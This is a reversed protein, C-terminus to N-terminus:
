QIAPGVGKLQQIPRVIKDELYKVSENDTKDTLIRYVLIPQQNSSPGGIRVEPYSIGKPLDPYVNNILQSVQSGVLNVDAESSLTLGITGWGNGSTSNVDNVENILSLQAELVSTVRQEITAPSAGAYGFSINLSSNTYSPYLQLPIEFILALGVLSLLSFLTITAFSSITKLPM